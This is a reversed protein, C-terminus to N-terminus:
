RIQIKSTTVLEAGAVEGEKLAAKLAVKDPRTTFNTIIYMPPLAQEDTIHVETTKRYSVKARATELEEYGADHLCTDLYGKLRAVKNEAAKRRKALAQEEAKIDAALAETNKIYLAVAEAKDRFDGGLKDYEAFGTIEGTEEDVQLSNLAQLYDEKIQWLNM